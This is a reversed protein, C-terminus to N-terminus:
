LIGSLLDEFMEVLGAANFDEGDISFTGSITIEPDGSSMDITITLNFGVSEVPASAGSFTLTGTITITGTYEGTQESSMTVSGNVIIGPYYSSEYDTFTITGTGGGEAFPDDGTMEVGEPLEDGFVEGFVIAMAADLKDLDEQTPDPAGNECGIFVVFLATMVVLVGIIVLKLKRM